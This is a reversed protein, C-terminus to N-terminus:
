SFMSNHLSEIEAERDVARERYRKREEYLEDDTKLEKRCMPCSNHQLLTVNTQIISFRIKYLIKVFLGKAAM